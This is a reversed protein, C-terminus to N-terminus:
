PYNVTLKIEVFRNLQHERESCFVGPKCNNVLASSGLSESKIETTVNADLLQQKLWDARNKGLKFNYAKTGRSDAHGVLVM